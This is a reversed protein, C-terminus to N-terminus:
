NGFARRFDSRGMGTVLPSQCVYMDPSMAVELIFRALDRRSISHFPGLRLNLGETVQGTAPGDTLRPARVLTWKLDSDAVLRAHERADNLIDPVLLEMLRIMAFRGLSKPDGPTDVAAGVLSVLREVGEAQMAAALNYALATLTGQGAGVTSIVADCDRVAYAIRDLHHAAGEVLKLRRSALDIDSPTRAYATVFLGADLAEKLVLRGTRGSAGFLTLRM